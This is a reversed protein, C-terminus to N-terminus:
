NIAVKLTNQNGVVDQIKLIYIGKSLHSVPLTDTNVGAVLQGNVSYLAVTKINHTGTILFADKTQIVEFGVKSIVDMRTRKAGYAELEFISYGYFNGQWPSIKQKCDVRIYRVPVNALDIVTEGDHGETTSYVNQWTNDDESVVVDYSKAYAAEWVIVIKQLTEVKELDVKLWQDEYEINAESSGWRTSYSGDTANSASLLGFEPHNFASSATTPKLLALNESVPDPGGGGEGEGEIEANADTTIHMWNIRIGSGESATLRIKQKGADLNVTYKKTAWRNAGSLSPLTLTGLTAEAAQVTIKTESVCSYRLFLHYDGTAPVDINYELYDGANFDYVNIIGDTDTTEELHVGKMRIYHNSQIRSQTNHYFDDDYSSMNNFIKGNETLIGNHGNLLQMWPFAPIANNEGTKAMFWAYRAVMPETELYDFVDVLYEKQIKQMTAAPTGGRDDWSCFETLWIPKNYYGIYEKVYGILASSGGMYCHLSIADVDSIPVLQFFADLWKKPTGWEAWGSYNLGPSIIKLNLENALAKIDPWLDAAQQPTLNAQEKFNPENFTLLYKCNPHAQVYTRIANPNWGAGWRMPVYEIDRNDSATIGVASPVTGWDYFWTLGTQLAEFDADRLNSMCAGRKWSKTQASISLVCCACVLFLVTKKM